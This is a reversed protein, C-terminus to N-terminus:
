QAPAESSGADGKVRRLIDYWFSSGQAVAGFTILLGVLKKFVWSLLDVPTADKPMQAPMSWWGVKFSLDGLDKLLPGIDAQAGKQDIYAYAKADAISRLNANNWLQAAFDVSDVGLLLTLILASAIVFRRAYSKYTAAAQDMLGNLWMTSSSRLEEINTVGQDLMKLLAVKGGSNPLKLITERLADGTLPQQALRHLQFYADVLNAVPVSEVRAERLKGIFIGYWHDYRVPALSRIQPMALLDGLQTDGVLYRLYRELALGRTELAEMIRSAIFSVVLGLIYYILALGVIVELTQPINM